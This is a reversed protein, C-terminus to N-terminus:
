QGVIIRHHRGFHAQLSRIECVLKSKKLSLVAVCIQDSKEHLFRTGWFGVELGDKFWLRPLLDSNNVLCLAVDYGPYYYIGKVERAAIVHGSKSRPQRFQPIYGKITVVGDEWKEITIGEHGHHDILSYGKPANGETLDVTEASCILRSKTTPPPSLNTM